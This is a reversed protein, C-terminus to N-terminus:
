EGRHCSSPLFSIYLVSGLDHIRSDSKALWKHLFFLYTSIHLGLLPRLKLHYFYSLQEWPIQFEVREIKHTVYPSLILHPENM